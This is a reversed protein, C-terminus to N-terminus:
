RDIWDPQHPSPCLCVTQRDRQPLFVSAILYVSLSVSALVSLPSVTLFLSLSLCFTLSASLCPHKRCCEKPRSISEFYAKYFEGYTNYICGSTYNLCVFANNPRICAPIFSSLRQKPSHVQTTNSIRVSSGSMELSIKLVLSRDLCQHPFVCNAMNNLLLSDFHANTTFTVSLPCCDFASELQLCMIWKSGRPCPCLVAM